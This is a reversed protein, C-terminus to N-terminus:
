SPRNLKRRRRDGGSVPIFSRDEIFTKVYATSAQRYKEPYQEKVNNLWRAWRRGNTFEPPKESVDLELWFWVRLLIKDTETM